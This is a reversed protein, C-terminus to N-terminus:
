TNDLVNNIEEKKNKYNNKNDNIKDKLEDLNQVYKQFDIYDQNLQDLKNDIEDDLLNEKQM